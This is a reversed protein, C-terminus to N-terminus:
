HGTERNKHERSARYEYGTEISTCGDVNHPKSMQTRHQPDMSSTGGTKAKKQCIAPMAMLTRIVVSLIGPIICSLKSRRPRHNFCRSYKSYIFSYVHHAMSPPNGYFFCACLLRSWCEGVSPLGTRVVTVALILM